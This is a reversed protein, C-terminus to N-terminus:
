ITRTAARAPSSDGVNFIPYDEHDVRAHWKARLEKIWNACRGCCRGKSPGRKPPVRMGLMKELEDYVTGLGAFWKISAARLAARLKVEADAAVYWADHVAVVDRVGREALEEIVLGCFMADLTHIFSPGVMSTLKQKWTALEGAANKAPDTPVKTSIRV